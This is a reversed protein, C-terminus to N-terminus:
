EGRLTIRYRKILEIRINKIKNFLEKSRSAIESTLRKYEDVNEEKRGIKLISDRDGVVGTLDWMDTFLSNISKYIDDDDHFYFVVQDLQSWVKHNNKVQEDYDFYNIRTMENLTSVIEQIKPLIHLKISTAEYEAVKQSLRQSELAINKMGRANLWTMFMIIVILGSFLYDWFDECM